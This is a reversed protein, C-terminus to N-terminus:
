DCICQATWPPPFVLIYVCKPKLPFMCMYKPCDSDQFCKIVANVNMTVLLLCLFIIMVYILMVVETTNELRQM